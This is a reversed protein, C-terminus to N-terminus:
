VDDVPFQAAAAHPLHPQGPAGVAAVLALHGEREVIGGVRGLRAGVGELHVARALDDLEREVGYSRVPGTADTSEGRGRRDYTVVTFRDSLQAALGATDCAHGRATCAAFWTDDHGFRAQGIAILAPLAYSVM